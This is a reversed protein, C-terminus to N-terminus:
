PSKAPKAEPLGGVGRHNSFRIKLEGSPPAVVVVQEVAAKWTDFSENIGKQMVPCLENFAKTASGSTELGLDKRITGEHVPGFQQKVVVRDKETPQVNNRAIGEANKGGGGNILFRNAANTTRLGQNKMKSYLISGVPKTPAEKKTLTVIVLPPPPPITSITTVDPKELELPQTKDEIVLSLTTTFKKKRDDDIIEDDKPPAVDVKPRDDIKDPDPIDVEDDHQKIEQVPKIPEKIGKDVDDPKDPGSGQSVMKKTATESPSIVPPQNLPPNLVFPTNVNYVNVAPPMGAIPSQPPTLQQPPKGAEPVAGAVDMILYPLATITSMFDNAGGGCESLMASYAGYDVTSLRQPLTDMAHGACLGENGSKRILTQIIEPTMQRMLGNTVQEKGVVDLYADMAKNLQKYEASADNGFPRKAGSYNGQPNTESKLSEEKVVYKQIAEQLAKEANKVEGALGTCNSGDVWISLLRCGNQVLRKGGSANEATFDKILGADLQLDGLVAEVAAAKMKEATAMQQETFLDKAQYPISEGGAQRPIQSSILTQAHEFAVKMAQDPGVGDVTGSFGRNSIDSLDRKIFSDARHLKRFNTLQDTCTASTISPPM